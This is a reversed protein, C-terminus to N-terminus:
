ILTVHRLRCTSPAHYEWHLYSFGRWEWYQRHFNIEKKSLFYTKAFVCREQATPGLNALQRWCSKTCATLRSPVTSSVPFPLEHQHHASCFRVKCQFPRSIADSKKEQNEKRKCTCRRQPVVTYRRSHCTAKGSRLHPHCATPSRICKMVAVDAVATKM